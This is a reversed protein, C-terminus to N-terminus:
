PGYAGIALLSAVRNIPSTCLYVNRVYQTRLSLLYHHLDGKQMLECVIMLKPIFSFYDIM